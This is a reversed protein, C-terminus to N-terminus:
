QGISQSPTKRRGLDRPYSADNGVGDVVGRDREVLAVTKDTGREALADHQQRDFRNPRQDAFLSRVPFPNFGM